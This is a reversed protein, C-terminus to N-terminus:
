PMLRREPWAPEVTNVRIAAETCVDPSVGMTTSATTNMMTPKAKLTEATGNWVQAGSVYSPAGVGTVANRETADFAAPKTANTCNTYMANGDAVAIQCGNKQVSAASDIVTPLTTASPCVFMTRMSAYADIACPPNMRM